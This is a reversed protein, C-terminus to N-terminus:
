HAWSLRLIERLDAADPLEEGPRGRGRGEPHMEEADIQESSAMDVNVTRRCGAVSHGATESRRRWGVMRRSDDAREERSRESRGSKQM